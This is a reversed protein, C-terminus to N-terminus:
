MASSRPMLTPPLRFIWMASRRPLQEGRGATRSRSTTCGSRCRRRRAGTSPSRGARRALQLACRPPVPKSTGTTRRVASPTPPRSRRSGTDRIGVWQRQVDDEERLRRREATTASTRCRRPERGLLEGDDAALDVEVQRVAHSARLQRRRQRQDAADPRSAVPAGHQLQGLQAAIQGRARLRRRRLAVRVALEARTHLPRVTTPTRGPPCPSRACPGPPFPSPASPACGEAESSPEAAIATTVEARRHPLNASLRFRHERPEGWQGPPGHEVLVALGARPRLRTRWRRRGARTRSSRSSETKPSTTRVDSSRSSRISTPPPPRRAGLHNRRGTSTTTRSPSAPSAPRRRPSPRAGRAPRRRRARSRAQEGVLVVPQDAHQEVRACSSRTSTPRGWRDRRRSGGPRERCPTGGARCARRGRGEGGVALRRPRDRRQGAALQSIRRRARSPTPLLSIARSRHIM